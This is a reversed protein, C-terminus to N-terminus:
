LILWAGTVASLDWATPDSKSMQTTITRAIAECASSIEESGITM